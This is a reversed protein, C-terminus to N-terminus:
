QPMARMEITLLVRFLIMSSLPFRSSSVDKTDASNEFTSFYLVESKDHEENAELPCKVANLTSDEHLDQSCILSWMRFQYILQYVTKLINTGHFHADSPKPRMARRYFFKKAFLKRLPM